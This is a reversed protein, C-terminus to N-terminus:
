EDQGAAWIVGLIRKLAFGIFAITEKKEAVATKNKKEAAREEDISRRVRLGVLGPELFRREIDGEDIGASRLLAILREVAHAPGKLWERDSPAMWKFFVGALEGLEKRAENTNEDFWSWFVEIKNAEALRRATRLPQKIGEDDRRDGILRRGMSQEFPMFRIRLQEADGPGAGKMQLAARLDGVRDVTELLAGLDRASWHTPGRDTERREITTAEPIRRPARAADFWAQTRPKGKADNTIQDAAQLTRGTVVAVGRRNLYTRSIAADCQSRLLWPLHYYCTLTTSWHAHGLTIVQAMLDRPLIVDDAFEQKPLIGQLRKADQADLFCPTIREFAVLHRLRHLRESPRRTIAALAQRCATTLKDRGAASRPNDLPSFVFANERRWNQIRLGDVKMWEVFSRTHERPVAATLHIVRRAARTKLRRSRNARIRAWLTGHRLSLDSFRTGLIESRRAGGYAYFPMAAAAQRDARVAVRGEGDRAGASEAASILADIAAQREPLLILHADVSRVDQGLYARVEGLEVDPMDFKRCCCDHFALIAAAAKERTDAKSRIVALYIDELEADELDQMSSNGLLEVLSGGIRTLYTLITVDAPDSKAQTGEELMELVWNALLRVVPQLAREPTEQALMAKVEAIVKPRTAKNFLDAAPINVDTIILDLDAGAHPLTACLRDYQWRANAKSASPLKPTSAAMSSDDNEWGRQLTGVPDGDILAIQEDIHANVAGGKVKLALRAAPSLEFRNAVAVTECLLTLLEPVVVATAETTEGEPPTRKKQRAESQPLAWEPLLMRLSLNIASADPMEQVPYKKALRILALGALGRASIIQHPAPGWPVLITDDLVASPVFQHRYKLAGLIQAPDECFGFVALAHATRACALAFDRWDGPPDASRHIAAQRLARVQRVTELMGPVFANDVPRRLLTLPAPEEGALGVRKNVKRLIRSLAESRALGLAEDDGATEFLADRVAEAAEKTLSHKQWPGKASSFVAPIGADRLAPYALVEQEAQKRYDLLRAKQQVRWAKALDRIAQEHEAIETSWVRLPPLPLTARAASSPIGQRVLWGQRDALKELVPCTAALFTEPRTPSGNSFPYGVAELHGLQISALEPRLGEEIGLTRIWTRGWHLPVVQWVAPLLARWTEMTLQLAGGDSTVGFLLPAKGALVKAVHKEFRKDREALGQLHSLYAHIQRVLCPALAVLRPNHAPDHVKDRFMGCGTKPDLYLDRLKLQFLANVPRHGAVALLMCALHTVMAQHIEQWRDEALLRAVGFQLLSAPASAMQRAVDTTVLMASGVRDESQFATPLPEDTGLIDQLLTWYARAVTSTRPAYYHLPATSQGLTDACILQTLATDRCHEFLHAAFSRRIQGATVRIGLQESVLRAAARLWGDIIKQDTHALQALREVHPRLSEAIRTPLPLKFAAAVSELWAAQETSPIFFAIDNARAEGTKADRKEQDWFVGLRFASEGLCLECSGALPTRSFADVSRVARLTKSLRGTIGQLLLAVCGFALGDDIEPVEMQELLIRIVQRFETAPLVDPHNTLLLHNMGWVTQQVQYIAMQKADPHLPLTPLPCIWGSPNIETAPEGPEQEVEKGRTPLSVIRVADDFADLAVDEDFESEKKKGVSPPTPLPPPLSDVPPAAPPVPLGLAIRKLEPDFHLRWATELGDQGCTSLVAAKEIFEPLTRADAVTALHRAILHSDTGDKWRLKVSNRLASALVKVASHRHQNSQTWRQHCVWLAARLNEPGAEPSAESGVITGALAFEGRLRSQADEKSGSEVGAAAIRASTRSLFDVLDPEGLADPVWAVSGAIRKLAEFLERGDGIASVKFLGMLLRVRPEDPGFGGVQKSLSVGVDVPPSESLPM